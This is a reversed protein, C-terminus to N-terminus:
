STWQVVIFAIFGLSLILRIYCLCKGLHVYKDQIAPGSVEKGEELALHKKIQQLELSLQKLFVLSDTNDNEVLPFERTPKNEM